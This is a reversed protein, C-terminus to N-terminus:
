KRVLPLGTAAPGNVVHGDPAYRSGHCPCDWSKETSNWRVIGGLHRCVASVETVNGAIDRYVAVKTLGRRLIAGEGRPIEDESAVEGPTVWDKYPLNSEAM